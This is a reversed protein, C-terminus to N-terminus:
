YTIKIQGLLKEEWHSLATLVHRLESPTIISSKEPVIESLIQMANSARIRDSVDLYEQQDM